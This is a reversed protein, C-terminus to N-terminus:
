GSKRGSSDTILNDTQKQVQTSLLNKGLCAQCEAITRGTQGVFHHEASEVTFQSLILAGCGKAGCILDDFPSQGAALGAPNLVTDHTGPVVIPLKHQTRKMGEFIHM